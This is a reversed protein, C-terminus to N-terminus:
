YPRLRAFNIKICLMALVATCVGQLMISAVHFPLTFYSVRALTEHRGCWALPCVSGSQAGQVKYYKHRYFYNVQHRSLRSRERFTASLLTKYDM